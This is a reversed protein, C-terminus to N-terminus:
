QGQVHVRDDEAVTNLPVGAGAAGIGPRVQVLHLNGDRDGATVTVNGEQDGAAPFQGVPQRM